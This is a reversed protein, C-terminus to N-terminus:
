EQLFINVSQEEDDWAVSYGFAEAVFRAPLYTRGNVILPATDMESTVGGSTLVTSGITLAVEMDEKSIIIKWAAENWKTEAGLAEALYRVPM